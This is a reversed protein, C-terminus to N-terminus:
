LLFSCMHENTCAHLYIISLDISSLAERKQVLQLQSCQESGEKRRMVVYRLSLVNKLPQRVDWLIPPGYNILHSTLLPCKLQRCNKTVIVCSRTCTDHGAQHFCLLVSRQRQLAQCPPQRSPPEPHSSPSLGILLMQGEDGELLESSEESSKRVWAFDALGSM